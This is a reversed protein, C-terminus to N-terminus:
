NIWPGRQEGYVLVYRVRTKRNVRSDKGVLQKFIVSTLGMFEKDTLKVTWNVKPPNKPIRGYIEREFDEILEPRCQNWWQALTAVRKGSKLTLVDPLDHYSNALAEDYNTHDQKATFTVPELQGARIVHVQQALAQSCLAILALCQYVCKM